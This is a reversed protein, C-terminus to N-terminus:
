RWPVYLLRHSVADIFKGVAKGWRGMAQTAFVALAEDNPPCHHCAFAALQRWTHVPSGAVTLSECVVFFFECLCPSSFDTLCMKSRCLRVYLLACMVCVLENWTLEDQLAEEWRGLQMLAMAQSTPIHHWAPRDTEPHKQYIDLIKGMLMAMKIWKSGNQTDGDVFGSSGSAQAVRLEQADKELLVTKTAEGADDEDDVEPPEQLM